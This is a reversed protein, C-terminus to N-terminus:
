NYNFLHIVLLVVKQKCKWFSITSDCKWLGKPFLLRLTNQSFWPLICSFPDAATMRLHETFCTKKLIKAFDVPFCKHWLSQCLYKGTFKAFNRLVGKKCFMSSRSNRYVSACGPGECVHVISLKAVITLPKRM